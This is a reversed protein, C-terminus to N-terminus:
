HIKRHYDDVLKTFLVNAKKTTGQIHTPDDAPQNVRTLRNSTQWFLKLVCFFFILIFCYHIKKKIILIKKISQHM